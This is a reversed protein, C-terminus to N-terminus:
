EIHLKQEFKWVLNGQLKQLFQYTTDIKSKVKMLDGFGSCYFRSNLHLGAKDKM